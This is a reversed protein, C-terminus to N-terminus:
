GVKATAPRQGTPQYAGKLALAAAELSPASDGFTCLATDAQIVDVDYPNRLALLISEPAAKIFKQALQQQTPNSHANRTAVLLVDVRAALAEAQSLHSETPDAGHLSVIEEVSLQNQIAHGLDTLDTIEMVNSTRRSSFEIVGIRKGELSPLQGALSVASKAVELALQKHAETNVNAPNIATADIAYQAKMAMIREYAADLNEQTIRGTQIAEDVATFAAEQHSRTHSILLIDVGALIGLVASEGQGYHKSIAHMELCDTVVVGSYGLQKRLLNHIVHESLTAPHESDLASYITHTTMISAINADIVHQYPVLDNELLQDLPTDLSPLDLHSDISTNGLGPFHKACAMVGGAQFGKTAQAALEGVQQPDIGFSRTGVTPNDANYSLDLVPAYTWNIGLSRMEDALMRSVAETDHLKDQTAALAMAGPSETFGQSQRLRAVMGGEQDIGILIPTPSAEHLSRTLAALQQPDKVNRAFLIIGGIRGKQLWDLIYDPATLGDFGVTFRQGIRPDITM